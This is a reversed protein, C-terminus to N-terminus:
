EVERAEALKEHIERQLIPLAGSKICRTELDRLYEFLISHKRKLMTESLEACHLSETLSKIARVFDAQQLEEEQEPPAIM